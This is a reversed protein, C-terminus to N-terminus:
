LNLLMGNQMRLQRGFRRALESNHTVVVFTVGKERNISSFFEIMEAETEEDLDGTPEDALVLEPSNAFARAIAIRRQQGGSLQSPYADAKDQLGVIRLLDEASKGNIKREASFLAPLVINQAATLTPVLSAFQYIFGIKINRFESLTDDTMQLINNKDIIINGSDPKTLGGLLSLLTTKGSGSHGVISVMEGKHITVSVGDVAKFVQGGVSYSKVLDSVEIM